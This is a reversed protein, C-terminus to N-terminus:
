RHSWIEYETWKAPFGMDRFPSVTSNNPFTEVLTRLRAAWELEPHNRTTMYAVLALSSYVKKREAPTRGELHALAPLLSPPLAPIQYTLSRNWLRSHHASVNRLYNLVKLCRAFLKGAPIGMARAIATQDAQKLLTFLRVASGFDLVEIAVWIPLEGNYKEVYHTIFDESRADRQLRDYRSRWQEYNSPETPSTRRECADAELASANLHGFADRAGLVYAVQVRLALEIAELADLCLMRLDRDFLALSAVLEFSTEAEFVDTRYQVTTERAHDQPLLARFPYAYASFRYYGLGQLVQEAAAPDSCTM